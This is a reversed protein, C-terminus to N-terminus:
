QAAVSDMTKEVDALLARYYHETPALYLIVYAKGGREAVLATGSIDLGEKTKATIDFRVANGGAFRAPRPNVTEVRQYELATVSDAVFEILEIQSMGTRYTPTPQEKAAPKLMFGGPAIGDTIYLRNLLPGDVSLLHVGKAQYLMIATIDSWQRSLTVSYGSGAAYPGMPANKITTCASLALAAILGATALWSKKMSRM